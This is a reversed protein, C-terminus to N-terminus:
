GRDADDDGVVLVDHAGGEARDEGGLVVEVDDPEGDVPGRRHSEAALAIGVDHDHVDPHGVEVPDFGGAPDYFRRGVAPRPDQHERREIEVLVDVVGEVGAGAPEQELVDGGLLEEVRHPDHRGAVGQDRRGDGAPEDGLEGPAAWGWRGSAERGQIREGGALGAHQAEDGLAEGVGLDGGAERDALLGHLGV